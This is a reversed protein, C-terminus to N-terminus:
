LLSKFPRKMERGVKLKEPSKRLGAMRGNGANNPARRTRSERM